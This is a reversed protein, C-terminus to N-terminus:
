KLIFDDTEWYVGRHVKIPIIQGTEQIMAQYFGADLGEIVVSGYVMGDERTFRAKSYCNEVVKGDSNSRIVTFINENIGDEYPVPM